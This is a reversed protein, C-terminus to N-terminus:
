AVARKVRPVEELKIRGLLLDTVLRRLRSNELELEAIQDGAGCM